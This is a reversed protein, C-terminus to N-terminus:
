VTQSMVYDHKTFIHLGPKLHANLFEQEEETWLEPDYRVLVCGIGYYMIENVRHLPLRADVIPPAPSLLGVAALEHRDIIQPLSDFNHNQLYMMVQNLEITGICQKGRNFIPQFDFGTATMRKIEAILNDQGIWLGIDPNDTMSDRIKSANYYTHMVSHSKALAFLLYDGESFFLYEEIAILPYVSQPKAFKLEVNRLEDAPYPKTTGHRQKWQQENLVGKKGGLNQILGSSDGSNLVSLIENLQADQNKEIRDLFREKSSYGEPFGLYVPDDGFHMILDDIYGAISKTAKEIPIEELEPERVIRQVMLNTLSQDVDNSWQHHFFDIAESESLFASSCAYERGMGDEREAQYLVVWADTPMAKNSKASPLKHTLDRRFTHHRVVDLAISESSKGPKSKLEILEKAVALLRTRLSYMGNAM